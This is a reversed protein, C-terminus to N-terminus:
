SFFLFIVRRGLFSVSVGDFFLIILFFCDVDSNQDDATEGVM